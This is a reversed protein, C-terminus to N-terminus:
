ATPTFTILGDDADGDFSGDFPLDAIEIDSPGSNGDEYQISKVSYEVICRTPDITFKNVTTSTTGGYAVSAPDPTSVATFTFPDDCPNNFMITGEAKVEPGDVPYNVLKAVIDYEEATNILAQNSSEATFIGTDPDYILPDGGTTPIETIVNFYPTLEIEGCLAHDYPVTNVTFAGHAAYPTADDDIIYTLTALNPKGITVFDTDICPNLMNFDQM